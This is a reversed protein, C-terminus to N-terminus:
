STAASPSAHLAGDMRTTILDRDHKETRFEFSFTAERSSSRRCVHPVLASLSSYSLVSVFLLHAQPQHSSPDPTRKSRRLGLRSRKMPLPATRTFTHNLANGSCKVTNSPEGCSGIIRDVFSSMSPVCRTCTSQVVVFFTTPTRRTSTSAPQSPGDLPWEREKESRSPASLKSVDAFFRLGNYLSWTWGM